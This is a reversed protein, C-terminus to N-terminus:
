DEPGFLQEEEGDGCDDGEQNWEDLRQGTGAEDGGAAVDDATSAAVDWETAPGAEAGLATGVAAAEAGEQDQQQLGDSWFPEAAEGDAADIGGDSASGREGFSGEAFSGEACSGAQEFAGEMCAGQELSAEGDAAPGEEAHVRATEEQFYVVAKMFTDFTIRQPDPTGEGRRQLLAAVLQQTATASPDLGAMVILQRLQHPLITAKLDDGAAMLTFSHRLMQIQKAGLTGSHDQVLRADRPGAARAARVAVVEGSLVKNPQALDCAPLDSPLANTASLDLKRTLSMTQLQGSLPELDGDEINLMTGCKPQDAVWEAVYKRQKNMFFLTGRGERQDRVWSGVFVDGNALFLTGHGTRRDNVWEGAYVNGADFFFRGHGHRLGAVFDGTYQEGSAYYRTGDGERVGQVYSGEYELTLSGSKASFFKGWGHPRGALVEGEYRSGNDMLLEGLKGARGPGTLCSALPNREKATANWSRAASRRPLTPQPPLQAVRLTTPKCPISADQYKVSPFDTYIAKSRRGTTDTLRGATGRQSGGTRSPAVAAPQPAAYSAEEPITEGLVM